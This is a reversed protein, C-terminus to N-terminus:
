SEEDDELEQERRRAEVVLDLVRERLEGTRIKTSSKLEVMLSEPTIDLKALRDLVWQQEEDIEGHELALTGSQGIWLNYLSLANLVVMTDDEDLDLFVFM